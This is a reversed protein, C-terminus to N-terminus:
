QVGVAVTYPGGCIEALMPVTQEANVAAPGTDVIRVVTSCFCRITKSSAGTLVDTSTTAPPRTEPSIDIYDSSKAWLSEREAKKVCLPIVANKL